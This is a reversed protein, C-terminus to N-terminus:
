LFTLSVYFLCLSHVRSLTHLSFYVGSFFFHSHSVSLFLLLFLSHSQTHSRSNSLSLSFPSNIFLTCFIGTAFYLLSFNRWGHRSVFCQVDVLVSRGGVVFLITLTIPCSDERPNEQLKCVRRTLFDVSFRASVVPVRLRTRFAIEPAHAMKRRWKAQNSKFFNAGTAVNASSSAVTQEDALGLTTTAHASYHPPIITIESFTM